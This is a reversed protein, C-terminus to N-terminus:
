HTTAAPMPNGTIVKLKNSQTVEIQKPGLSALVGIEQSGDAAKNFPM